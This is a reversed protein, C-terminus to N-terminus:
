RVVIYAEFRKDTLKIRKRRIARMAYGTGVMAAASFTTGKDLTFKNGSVVTNNFLDLALLGYGATPLVREAARLIEPRNTNANQIDVEILQELLVINNELVITSDVFETIRDTFFESMGKQKYVLYDGARYEYRRTSGKKRILLYDQASLGQFLFLLLLFFLTSRVKM